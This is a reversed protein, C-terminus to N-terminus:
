DEKGAGAEPNEDKQSFLEELMKEGFYIAKEVISDMEGITPIGGQNKIMALAANLSYGELKQMYIQTRREMKQEETLAAPKPMVVQKKM